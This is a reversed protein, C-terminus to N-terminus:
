KDNTQEKHFTMDLVIYAIIQEEGEYYDATRFYVEITNCIHRDFWNNKLYITKDTCKSLDFNDAIFEEFKSVQEDEIYTDSVETFCVDVLQYVLNKEKTGM